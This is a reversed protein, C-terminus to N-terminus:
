GKESGKESKEETEDAKSLHNKLKNSVIKQAVCSSIDPPPSLMSFKEMKEMMLLHLVSHSQSVLSSSKLNSNTEFKMDLTETALFAEMSVSIKAASTKLEVVAIFTSCNFLM